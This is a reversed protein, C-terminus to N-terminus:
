AIDCLFDLATGPIATPSCSEQAEMWLNFGPM